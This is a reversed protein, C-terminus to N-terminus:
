FEPEQGVIIPKLKTTSQKFGCKKCVKSWQPVVKDRYGEYNGWVDSGQAIMKYGYGEKEIKPDSFPQGFEHSCNRIKNEESAIQKKLEEIKSNM